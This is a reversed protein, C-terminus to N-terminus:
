EVVSKRAYFTRGICRIFDAEAGRPRPPCNRVLYRHLVARALARHAAIPM